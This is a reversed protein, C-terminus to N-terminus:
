SWISYIQPGSDLKLPVIIFQVYYSAIHSIYSIAISIKCFFTFALSSIKDNFLALTIAIM